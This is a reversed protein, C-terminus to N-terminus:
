QFYIFGHDGTYGAQDYVWRWGEPRHFSECTLQWYLLNAKESEDRYSEVCIYGRGTSVRQMERVAQDLEHIQLNHFTNISIVLDFHRDPWPLRTANGLTLFPRVEEKANNIGYESIDLGAVTLGPCARTMEYLLFAKGCGIDLVKDGAKLGYHRVLDEALPLWRGDYRMGGFGHRRDGDWYDFGWQKATAACEAKDYEVVRQVYDRKTANHYRGIFDIEAM